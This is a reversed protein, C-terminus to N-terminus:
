ILRSDGSLLGMDMFEAQNLKINRGSTWVRLIWECVYEACESLEKTMYYMKRHVVM